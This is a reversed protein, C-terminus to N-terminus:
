NSRHIWYSALMESKSEAASGLNREHCRQPLDILKRFFAQLRRFSGPNLLDFNNGFRWFGLYM